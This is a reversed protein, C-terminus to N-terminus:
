GNVRGYASSIVVGPVLSAMQRLLVNQQMLLCAGMTLWLTLIPGFQMPVAHKCDVQAVLSNQELRSLCSTLKRCLQECNCCGNSGKKSESLRILFMLSVVSAHPARTCVGVAKMWTWVTWILHANWSHLRPSENKMMKPVETATGGRRAKMIARQYMQCTFSVM